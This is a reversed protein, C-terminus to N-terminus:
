HSSESIGAKELQILIQELCQQYFYQQLQGTPSKMEKAKDYCKRLANRFSDKREGTTKWYVRLCFSCLFYFRLLQCIGQDLKVKKEIEMAQPLDDKTIKVEEWEEGITEPCNWPHNPCPNDKWNTYDPQQVNKVRETQFINYNLPNSFCGNLKNYGDPTPRTAMEGPIQRVIIEGHWNLQDIIKKSDNMKVASMEDGWTYGRTGYGEWGDNKLHISAVFPDYYDGRLEDHARYKNREDERYIEGFIDQANNEIDSGDGQREVDDLEGEDKTEDNFVDESITNTTVLENRLFLIQKEKGHNSSKTSAM